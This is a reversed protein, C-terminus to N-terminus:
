GFFEIVKKLQNSIVNLEELSEVLDNIDAGVTETSACVEESIAANNESNTSLSQIVQVMEEKVSNQSDSQEKIHDLKGVLEKISTKLVEMAESVAIAKELQAKNADVLQGNSEQTKSMTSVIDNIIEATDKASQASSTALKKIEDAVVAFGRGFEGAHSAEVSANLALLNIQFSINDITKVISKAKRTSEVGNEIDISIDDVIRNNSDISDNLETIKNESDHVCTRITEIFEYSENIEMNVVDLSSAFEETSAMAQETAAAQSTAGNAVNDMAQSIENVEKNTKDSIDAVNDAFKQLSDYGSNMKDSLENSVSDLIKKAILVMVVLVVIGTILISIVGNIVQKNVQSQDIGTFLMGCFGNENYIPMYCVSYKKGFITVGNKVYTNGSKVERYIAEDAQTGVAYDGKENRINTLVRTDDWFVTHFVTNDDENIAEFLSVDVTKGDCTLVNTEEDYAWSESGNELSQKLHSTAISAMNGYNKKSTNASLIASIVSVVIVVSAVSIVVLFQLQKKVTLSKKDM